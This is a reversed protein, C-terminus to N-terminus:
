HRTGSVLEVSLRDPGEFMFAQGGDFDHVDEIIVIDNAGLWARWAAVDQVAFSVHDLAQGRSPVLPEASGCRDGVCQRPYWSITGSGHVVTGRPQRITGVTELSPWGAEGTPAGCPEYPPRPSTTDDENRIPPLSMGLLEVYWNAACQPEEQFLHVHSLSRTTGAGGTFEFLVGDPALVYSFGGPRSEVREATAVDAAGVIGNYPTLGSRWVGSRDGPGTYLPLHEVGAARLEEDMDTTNAFAGIHWFASQTDSRGLEPVFDGPPPAGVQDFLLYMEGAVSPTGDVEAREASPWVSLYWEIAREPDVSNLGVHHLAPVDDPRVPANDGTDTGSCASFALASLVVSSCRRSISLTRPHM